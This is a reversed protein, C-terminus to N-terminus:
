RVIINNLGQKWHGYNIKGKILVAIISKECELKRLCNGSEKLVKAVSEHTWNGEQSAVFQFVFFLFVVLYKKSM